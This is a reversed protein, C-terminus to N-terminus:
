WSHEAGLWPHKQSGVYRLNPRRTRTPRAGEHCPNNAGEPSPNSAGEPAGEPSQSNGSDDEFSEEYESENTTQDSNNLEQVQFPHNMSLGFIMLSLLTLRKANMVPLSSNIGCLLLLHPHYIM